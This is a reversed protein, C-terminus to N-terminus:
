HHRLLTSQLDEHDDVGDWIARISSFGPFAAVGDYSVEVCAKIVDRILNSSDNLEFANKVLRLDEAIVSHERPTLEAVLFPLLSDCWLFAIGCHSLFTRLSLLNIM